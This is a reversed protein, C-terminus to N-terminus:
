RPPAKPPGEGGAGPAGPPRSLLLWGLAAGVAVRSLAAAPSSALLPGVGLSWFAPVPDLAACWGVTFGATFLPLLLRRRWSGPLRRALRALPVVLAPLAPLLLRPGYG